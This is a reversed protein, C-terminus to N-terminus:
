FMLDSSSLSALGTGMGQGLSPRFDGTASVSSFQGYGPITAQTSQISTFPNNDAATTFPTYGSHNGKHMDLPFCHLFCESDVWDVIMDNPFLFDSGQMGMNQMGSMGQMGMGQNMYNPQLITNLVDDVPRGFLMDMSQDYSEWPMGSGSLQKSFYRQLDNRLLGEGPKDWIRKFLNVQGPSYRDMDGLNQYVSVIKDRADSSSSTLLGRIYDQHQKVFSEQIYHTEYPCMGPVDMDNCFSRLLSRGEQLISQDNSMYFPSGAFGNFTQEPILLRSQDYPRDRLQLLLELTSMPDTGFFPLYQNKFDGINQNLYLLLHSLGQSAWDNQYHNRYDNVFSFRADLGNGYHSGGKQKKSKSSKSKKKPSKSRKASKSRVTVVPTKVPLLGEAVYLAGNGAVALLKCEVGEVVISKAAKGNVVDYKVGKLMTSVDLQDRDKFSESTIMRSLVHMKIQKKMDAPKMAKLKTLAKKDPALFSRKSVPNTILSTLCHKYLEKVIEHVDKQEVLKDLITCFDKEQTAM